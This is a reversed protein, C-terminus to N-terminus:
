RRRRPSRGGNSGPRIPEMFNINPISVIRVRPKRRAAWNEYMQVYLSLGDIFTRVPEEIVWEDGSSMVVRLREREHERLYRELEDSSM